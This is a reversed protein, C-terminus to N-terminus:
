RFPGDSSKNLLHTLISVMYMYQKVKNVRGFSVSLCLIMRSRDDRLPNEKFSWTFLSRKSLAFNQRMYSDEIDAIGFM